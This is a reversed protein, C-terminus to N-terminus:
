ILNITTGEAESNIIGEQFYIDHIKSGTIEIKRKM